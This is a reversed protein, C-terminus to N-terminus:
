FMAYGSKPLSPDPSLRAAQTLIRVFTESGILLSLKYSLARVKAVDNVGNM